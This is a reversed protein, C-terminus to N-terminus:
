SAVVIEDGRTSVQLGFASRLLRAFAAVNTAEFSGGVRLRAARDDAITLHVRNYRNFEAAADALTTRDFSRFLM